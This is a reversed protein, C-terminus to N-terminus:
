CTVCRRDRSRKYIFLPHCWRNVRESVRGDLSCFHEKWGSGLHRRIHFSQSRKLLRVVVLVVVVIQEVVRAVCSAFPSGLSLDLEVRVAMAGGSVLPLDCLFKVVALHLAPSGLARRRSKRGEIHVPLRPSNSTKYVYTQVRDIIKLLRGKHFSFFLM